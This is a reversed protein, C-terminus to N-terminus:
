LTTRELVTFVDDWSCAGSVWMNTVVDAIGGSSNAQLLLEVALVLLVVMDKDM